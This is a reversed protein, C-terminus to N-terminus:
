SAAAESAVSSALAPQAVRAPQGATVVAPNPVLVLAPKRPARVALRGTERHVAVDRRLLVAVATWALIRLDMAVSRRAVYLCDLKAKQPLLARVYHGVRDTPDLIESERAFALQTLGTIGPRVRLIADYARRERTVFGLDEPRPGVLSMTGRLVNWLQPIEDLKSSALFRGLRTFRDDDAATLAVGSADDRMKRFKLMKFERGNRGVRPCRYFVPGRSDAKIAAAVAVVLPTLVLLLFAAVAVDLVRKLGLDGVHIARSV